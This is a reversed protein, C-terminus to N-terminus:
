KPAAFGASVWRLAAKTPFSFLYILYGAVLMLAPFGFAVTSVERRDIDFEHIRHDEDRLRIVDQKNTADLVFGEPIGARYELGIPYPRGFIKDFVPPQLIRTGDKQGATALVLIVAIWVPACVLWLRWFGRGYNLRQAWRCASGIGEFLRKM